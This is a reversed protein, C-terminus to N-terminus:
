WHNIDFFSSMQCFSLNWSFSKFPIKIDYLSSPNVINMDTLSCFYTKFLFLVSCRTWPALGTCLKTVPNMNWGKLPLCIPTDHVNIIYQASQLIRNFSYYNFSYFYYRQDWSKVDCGQRVKTSFFWIFAM